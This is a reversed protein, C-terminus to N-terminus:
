RPLAGGGGPPSQDIRFHKRVDGVLKSTVAPDRHRILEYVRDWQEGCLLKLTERATVAEDILFLTDTDPPDIVISEGEPVNLVFQTPIAETLYSDFDYTKAM